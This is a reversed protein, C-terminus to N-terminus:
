DDNDDRPDFAHEEASEIEEDRAAADWGNQFADSLTEALSRHDDMPNYNDRRPGNM